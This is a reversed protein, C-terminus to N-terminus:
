KTKEKGVDNENEELMNAFADPNKEIIDIYTKLLYKQKIRTGKCRDDKYEQSQQSSDPYFNVWCLRCLSIAWCERCPDCNSLFDNEMKKIVDWYFGNEIDGIIPLRETKECPMLQGKVNVFIKLGGLTCPGCPVMKSLVRKGRILPELWRSFLSNEFKIGDLNGAIYGDM